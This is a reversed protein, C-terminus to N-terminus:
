IHLNVNHRIDPNLQKKVKVSYDEYLLELGVIALSFVNAYNKQVEWKLENKGCISHRNLEEIEKKLKGLQSFQEDIPLALLTDITQIYQISKTIKADIDAHADQDILQYKLKFNNLREAAEYTSGVIEDRTMENTEYSLMHKWSPQTIAIRHDELTHCLKKYGYKEPH